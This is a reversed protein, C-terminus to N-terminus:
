TAADEARAAQWGSFHSAVNAWVSMLAVWLISSHWWVVTPIVLLLWVVTLVAHVRRLYRVPIPGPTLLM